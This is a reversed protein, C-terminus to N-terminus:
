HHSSRSGGCLNFDIPNIASTESGIVSGFPLMSCLSVRSQSLLYIWVKFEFYSKYPLM